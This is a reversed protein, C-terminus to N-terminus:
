HCVVVHRFFVHLPMCKTIVLKADVFRKAPGVFVFM